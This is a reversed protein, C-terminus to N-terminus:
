KKEKLVEQSNKQAERESRYISEIKKLREFESKLYETKESILAAEKLTYAGKQNALELAQEILKLVDEIM